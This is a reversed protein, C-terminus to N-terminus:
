WFRNSVTTSKIFTSTSFVLTSLKVFSPIIDIVANSKTRLSSSSIVTSTSSLSRVIIKDLRLTPVCPTITIIRLVIISIIIGIFTYKNIRIWYNTKIITILTLSRGSTIDTRFTVFKIHVSITWFINTNIVTINTRIRVSTFLTSSTEGKIFVLRTWWYNTSIHETINTRSTSIHAILTSTTEVIVVTVWTFCISISTFTLIVTIFTSILPSTSRAM